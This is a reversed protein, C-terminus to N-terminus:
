LQPILNLRRETASSSILDSYFHPHSRQQATATWRMELPEPNSIHVAAATSLIIWAADRNRRCRGRNGALM